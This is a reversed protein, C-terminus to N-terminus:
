PGRRGTVAGVVASQGLLGVVRGGDLVAYESGGLGALYTILDRGTGAVDVVAGPALARAVTGAPTAARVGAPVSALSAGDVVAEPTGDAAVLVVHGPREALRRDIDEVTAASALASAPEMLGRVTVRPLRQRMRAERIAQGAGAWLFAGVLLSVITLQLDLQRGTVLPLGVFYAVLGIVILRGAWGAAVTGREQSGTARWVASEVLRGGDLPLGPLVNFVAVLFNAWVLINLLLGAVGQPEAVAMVAYGAGALAFNAAPGALAVLLSRGPTAHFSGFQTHGGWLTLVIRAGPWGFAQASLAHALEHVLVSLLLLLAYALAVAYAGSGIGPLARAVDPSFVVVIFAAIVFWSWALSVPVGFVRGLPIGTRKEQEVATM